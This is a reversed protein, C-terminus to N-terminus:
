GALRGQKKRPLAPQVPRPPLNKRNEERRVIEEAAQRIRKEEAGNSLSIHAFRGNTIEDAVEAVRCGHRWEEATPLQTGYLKVWIVQDNWANLEKPRISHSLTHLRIKLRWKPKNALLGTPAVRNIENEMLEKAKAEGISMRM